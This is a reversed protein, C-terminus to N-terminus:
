YGSIIPCLLPSGLLLVVTETLNVFNLLLCHYSQVSEESTIRYILIVIVNLILEKFSLFNPPKRHQMKVSDTNETGQARSQIRFGFSKLLKRSLTKQHHPLAVQLFVM